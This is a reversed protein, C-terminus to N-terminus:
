CSTFADCRKKTQPIREIRSKEIRPTVTVNTVKENGNGNGNSDSLQQMKLRERYRKQKEANRSVTVRDTVNRTNRERYEAAALVQWQTAGLRAIRAGEHPDDADSGPSKATLRDLAAIVVKEEVNLVGAMYGTSMSLYGEDDCHCALFLYVCRVSLPLERM